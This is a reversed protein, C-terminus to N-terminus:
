QHDTTVLELLSNTTRKWECATVMLSMPFSVWSRPWMRWLASTCCWISKKELMEDWTRINPKCRYIWSHGSYETTSHINGRYVPVSSHGPFQKFILPYIIFQISFIHFIRNLIDALSSTLVERLFSDLLQCESTNSLNFYLFSVM